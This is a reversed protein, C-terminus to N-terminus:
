LHFYLAVVFPLGYVIEYTRWGTAIANRYLQSISIGIFVCLPWTAGALIFNRDNLAFAICAGMFVGRQLGRKLASIRIAKSESGTLIRDTTGEHVWNGRIGGIAPVEEGLSPKCGIYWALAAPLSMTILGFLIASLNHGDVIERIIKGKWGSIASTKERFKVTVHQGGKIPYLLVMVLLKFFLTM